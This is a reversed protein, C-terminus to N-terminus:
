GKGQLIGKSNISISGSKLWYKSDKGKNLPIVLYFLSIITFICKKHEEYLVMILSLYLFATIFAYLIHLLIDYNKDYFLFIYYM